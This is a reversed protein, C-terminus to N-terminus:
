LNWKLLVQEGDGWCFIFIYIYICVCLEYWQFFIRGRQFWSKQRAMNCLPSVKSGFIWQERLTVAQRTSTKFFLAQSVWTKGGNGNGRKEVRFTQIHPFNRFVWLKQQFFHCVKSDVQKRSSARFKKLCVWGLSSHKRGHFFLLCFPKIFKDYIHDPDGQQLQLLLLLLPIPPLLPLPPLGM